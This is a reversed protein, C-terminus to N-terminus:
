DAKDNEQLHQKSARIMERLSKYTEEADKENVLFHLDPPASILEISIGKRSLISAIEAIVGYTSRSEMPERMTILSNGESSEIVYDSVKEMLSAMRPAKLVAVIRTPLSDVCSKIFYYYHPGHGGFLIVAPPFSSSNCEFFCVAM